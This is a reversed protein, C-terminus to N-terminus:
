EKLDLTKKRNPEREFEEKLLKWSKGDDVFMM